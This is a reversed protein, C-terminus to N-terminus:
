CMLKSKKVHGHGRVEERWYECSWAGEGGWGINVHGHGRVEVRWYECSRAGEDGGRINM